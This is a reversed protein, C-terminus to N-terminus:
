PAGLSETVVHEALARPTHHRLVHEAGAAAMARLRDKDALAHTICRALGGPEVAYHFAHIGDVLPEHREISPVNIVPVSGCALSEYHRFCDWGLGEPSWTLWARSMREWFEDPTLRAAPMDVRVGEAALRRIEALGQRRVTSSGDVLGAFFVDTTKEAQRRRPDDVFRQPLGLSFPRIRDVWAARAPHRRFRPSPLRRHGTKTFLRWRDAPLERKFYRTARRLLFLDHREILPSDERDVVALRAPRRWRLLQPGWPRLLPVHGRLAERDFLASLLWRPSWPPLSAPECVVLDPGRLARWLIPLTAATVRYSRRPPDHWADAVRDISFFTTESPYALKVFPRAGIEVFEPM